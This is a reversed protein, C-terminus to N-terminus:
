EAPTTTLLTQYANIWIPAVTTQWDVGYIKPMILTVVIMDWTFETSNNFQNRCTLKKSAPTVTEVAAIFADLQTENELMTYFQDASLPSTLPTPDPHLFELLEPADDAIEEEAYGAWFGTSSLNIKGNTDRGVFM